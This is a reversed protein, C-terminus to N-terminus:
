SGRNAGGGRAAHLERWFGGGSQHTLHAGGFAGFFQGFSFGGGAVTTSM